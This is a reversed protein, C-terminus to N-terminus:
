MSPLERVFKRALVKKGAGQFEIELKDGLDRVVTGIGFKPHEVRFVAPAPAEVQKPRFLARYRPVNTLSRHLEDPVGGVPARLKELEYGCAVAREAHDVARELEGRSAWIRVWDHHTAPERDCHDATRADWSRLTDTDLTPAVLIRAIAIRYLYDPAAAAFREFVALASRVEPFEIETVLKATAPTVPIDSMARAFLAEDDVLVARTALRVRVPPSLAALDLGAVAAREAPAYLDARRLAAEAHPSALAQQLAKADGRELLDWIEAEPPEPEGDAIRFGLTAMGARETAPWDLIQDFYTAGYRFAAARDLVDQPRSLPAEAAEGYWTLGASNVTDAVFYSCTPVALERSLYAALGSTITRRESEAVCVWGREARMVAYGIKGTREAALPRLRLPNGTVPRAGKALWFRSIADVVRAPEDTRVQILAFHWGM